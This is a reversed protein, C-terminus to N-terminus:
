LRPICAGATARDFGEAPQTSLEAQAAWDFNSGKQIDHLPKAFCSFSKILKRCHSCLSVFSLAENKAASRKWSRMKDAKEEDVKIAKKSAANCLAKVRERVLKCKKIKFNLGHADLRKLAQNLHDLHEELSKSFAIADDLCIKIHKLDGFLSIMM